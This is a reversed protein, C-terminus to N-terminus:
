KNPRVMRTRGPVTIGLDSAKQAINRRHLKTQLAHMPVKGYFRELIAIDTESWPQSPRYTKEVEELERIAELEEPSYHIVPKKPSM